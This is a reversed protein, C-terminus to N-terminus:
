QIPLTQTPITSGQSTCKENIIKEVLEEVQPLTERHNQYFWNTIDAAALEVEARCKEDSTMSSDKVIHGIDIEIAKDEIFGFNKCFQLDGDAYGKKCRTVTLDLYSCISTLARKIDGSDMLKQLHDFGLNARKQLVFEFRDIDIIDVRKNKYHLKIKKNILENTRNIHLYLLGTEERLNKYAEILGSFTSERRQLGTEYKNAYDKMLSHPLPLANKWNHQGLQRQRFFKLVTKGDASAFAYSYRGKALYYFPQDFIKKVEELQDGTIEEVDWKSNPAHTSTIKRVAFGERNACGTLVLLCIIITKKIM